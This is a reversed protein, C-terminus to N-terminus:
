RVENKLILDVTRHIDKHERAGNEKTRTKMDVQKEEPKNSKKTEHNDKM